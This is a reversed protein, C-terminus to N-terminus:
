LGAGVTITFNLAPAPRVAASRKAARRVKPPRGRRLSPLLIGKQKLVHRRNRVQDLSISLLNAVGQMGGGEEAALRNAELFEQVDFQVFRM